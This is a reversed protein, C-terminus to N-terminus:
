SKSGLIYCVIPIKYLFTLVLKIKTYFNFQVYARNQVKFAFRLKSQTYLM